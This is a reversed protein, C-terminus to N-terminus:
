SIKGFVKNILYLISASISFGFFMGLSGGVSGILDQLTLIDVEEHIVKTKTPIGIYFEVSSTNIPRVRPLNLREQLNYTTAFNTQFCQWYGPSDWEFGFNCITDNDTLCTPLGPYSIIHCIDSCNKKSFFNRFCNEFPKMEDRYTREVVNVVFGSHEETFKLTQQLPQFQPWASDLLGIWSKNSTIFLLLSDPKDELTDKLVIRFCFRIPASTALFDPTLKYCTGTGYTRVSELTFDQYVDESVCEKLTQVGYKLAKGTDYGSYAKINNIEFDTNLQFTVNDFTEIITKNSYGKKFTDFWNETINLKKLASSKAGPYFCITTTPFEFSDAVQNGTTITTRGQIFASMQDKM